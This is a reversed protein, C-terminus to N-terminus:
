YPFYFAGIDRKEGIFLKAMNKSMVDFRGKFIHPCSDDTNLV